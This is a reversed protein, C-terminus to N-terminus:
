KDQTELSQLLEAVAPRLEPFYKTAIRWMVLDDVRQYEHRLLNGIAKIEQWHANPYRDKLDQPIHRSAESVIEVCREIAKRTEFRSKYDAFTLDKVIETGGDIAEIMDSLRLLVSRNVM